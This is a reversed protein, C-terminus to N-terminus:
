QYQCTKKGKSLRIRARGMILVWKVFGGISSVMVLSKMLVARRSLMTAMHMGVRKNHWLYMRM